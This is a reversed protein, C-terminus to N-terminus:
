VAFERNQPLATDSRDGAERHYAAAQQKTEVEGESHIVM